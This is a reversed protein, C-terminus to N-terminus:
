NRNTTVEQVLLIRPTRSRVKGYRHGRRGACHKGKGSDTRAYTKRDPKENLLPAPRVRCHGGFLTPRHVRRNKLSVLKALPRGNRAIAIERERGKELDEVIRSLSSKAQLM